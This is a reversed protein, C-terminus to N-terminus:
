GQNTAPFDRVYNGHYRNQFTVYKKATRKCNEEYGPNFGFQVKARLAM